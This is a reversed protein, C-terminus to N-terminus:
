EKTFRIKRRSNESDFLAFFACLDASKANKAGNKSKSSALCSKRPELWFGRRLHRKMIQAEFKSFEKVFSFNYLIITIYLAMVAGM